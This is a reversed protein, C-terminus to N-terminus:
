LCRTADVGSITVLIYWRFRNGAPMACLLTLLLSEAPKELTKDEFVFNTQAPSIDLSNGAEILRIDAKQFNSFSNFDQCSTGFWIISITFLIQNLKSLLGRVKKKWAPVNLQSSFYNHMLRLQFM